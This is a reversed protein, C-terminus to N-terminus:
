NYILRIYGCRIYEFIMLYGINLEGFFIYIDDYKRPSVRAYKGDIGVVSEEM